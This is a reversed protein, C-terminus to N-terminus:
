VEGTGPAGSAEEKPEGKDSWGRLRYYEPIMESVRSVQGKAPGDPIPEKMLREPLIDHSGNIGARINFMREANWIREGIKLLDDENHSIGLCSNVLPVFNKFKLGMLPWCCLGLSDLVATADQYFKVLAPKGETEYPEIKDNVNLVEDIFTYAYLHHAGYNSTAFHLGMGQIARPDFPSMPMGKVGMFLDPREFSEALKRAGQGLKKAYGKKTSILTLAELIGNGNGFQLDIKIEDVTVVKKEVLEMATALTGGIAVPDLGMEACLMSATGITSLDSVGCNTGLTGISLYTPVMGRGEYSQQKMDTKKICAVPCGFCGQSRLAFAKELSEAGINGLSIPVEQFNNRPLIGNQNCLGVLFATGWQPMSQATLTASNLKNMLTNVVQVFKNGDAVKLSQQGKVAIAKLNKSGMVAGIGAGGVPLFRGNVVNADPLLREGAPGISLVFTERATWQNGLSGKFLSETESTSRGWYELAPVLRVKGDVVSLIVPSEARGEVIIMDFGAFKMEAGFHGRTKACALTDTLASRTVISCSAGTVAGTGVLPGSSFVLKNDASLPDVNPSVEDSFVKVALGRGGLFREAQSTDLEEVSHKGETLNVRLCRGVWGNM